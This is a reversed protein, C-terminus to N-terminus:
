GYSSAWTDMVQGGHGDMGASAAVVFTLAACPSKIQNDRTAPDRVSGSPLNYLFM